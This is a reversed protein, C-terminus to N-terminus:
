NIQVSGGKIRNVGSSHSVVYAGRILVKGVRTLTISAGGCRLTVEDEATFVVRKGDVEAVAPGPRGELGDPETRDAVAPDGLVQLVGLVIPSKPSGGDFTLIVERGILDRTLAVTTRALLPQGLPNSPYDVSPLGADALGVLRGTIV